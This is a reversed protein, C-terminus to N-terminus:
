PTESYTVVSVSVSAGTGSGTRALSSNNIAVNAPPASTLMDYIAPHANKVRREMETLVVDDGLKRTNIYDEIATTAATIIQDSDSRSGIRYIVMTVNIGVVTPAAVVLNMGAAVYGQYNVRDTQDGALVKTLEAITAVALEGTGDDATVTITGAYPYAPRISVSRVGSVTLAGSEIGRETSRALGQAYVRFRELRQDDTEAAQGGSFSTNNIGHELGSPLNVVSGNGNETDIALAIINGATGATSAVTTIIPSSADYALVSSAATTTFQQDGVKYQIGSGITIESLGATVVDRTNANYRYDYAGVIEQNVYNYLDSSASSASQVVTASYSANLNIADVLDQITSYTALALTLNDAPTGSTQTTFNTADISMKCSSDLGTYEITFIPLRYLRTYGTAATASLRGFGFGEYFYTKIALRLAVHFDMQVSSIINCIARLTEANISGENWDSLGVDKAVIYDRAMTFLQEPSYARTIAAM